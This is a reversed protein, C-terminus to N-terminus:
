NGYRRELLRVNDLSVNSGAYSMVNGSSNPYHNFGLVHGFEHMVAVPDNMVQFLTKPGGDIIFSSANACAYNLSCSGYKITFDAGKMLSNLDNGLPSIDTSLVFRTNSSEDFYEGSWGSEIIREFREGVGGIEDKYTGSVSITKTVTGNEDAESTTVKVDLNTGKLGHPDVNDPEGRGYDSVKSAGMRLAWTFAATAAGNKFIPSM